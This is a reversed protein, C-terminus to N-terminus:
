YIVTRWFAVLMMAHTRFVEFDTSCVMMTLSSKLGYTCQVTCGVDSSIDDGGKCYGATSNSTAWWGAQGFTTGVKCQTLDRRSISHQVSAIALGVNPSAAFNPQVFLAALAALVLLVLKFNMMMIVAHTASINGVCSVTAATDVLNSYRTDCYCQVCHCHIM